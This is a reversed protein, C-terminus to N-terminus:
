APVRLSLKSTPGPVGRPRFASVMLQVIDNYASNSINHKSKIAMLRTLTGLISMQTHEHLREEGTALLRFFEQADRPLQGPEEANMEVDRGLDHLMGDMRDHDDDLEVEADVHRISEGYWYWVIYNPMFGIKCLHKEMEEKKQPWKNECRNCPCKVLRGTADKFAHEIFFGKNCEDM